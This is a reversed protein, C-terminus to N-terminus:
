YNTVFAVLHELYVHPPKFYKMCRPCVFLQSMNTSFEDPYPSFFWTKIEHYGFVVSDFNRPRYYDISEHDSNSSAHTQPTALANSPYESNHDSCLSEDGDTILPCSNRIKCAPDFCPNEPPFDTPPWDASSCCFEPDTAFADPNVPSDSTSESDNNVIFEM